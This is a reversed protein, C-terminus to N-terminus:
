GLDSAWGMAGQGKWDEEGSIDGVSSVSTRSDGHGSFDDVEDPPNPPLTDWIGGLGPYQQLLAEPLRMGMMGFRGAGAPSVGYQQFGPGGM